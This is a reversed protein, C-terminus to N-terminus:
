EALRLLIRSNKHNISFQDIVQEYDMQFDREIALICLDSLREDAMTTRIRTKILKMKSFVRECTSSSVPITLAAKIMLMMNPFAQQLPMLDHYLESISSLNKNDLMPKLVQIENFLYNRDCNIHSSLPLLLDYNLFNKNQPSISSLSSLLAINSPSFRDRMEILMADILPYYINDRYGDESTIEQRHGITSTIFADKFRTPIINARRHKSKRNMDIGYKEQMLPVIIEKKLLIILHLIISEYNLMIANISSWRSDWRIDFWTKLKLTTTVDVIVPNLKHAHCHIYIGNPMHNKRLISQIGACKGSMVSAGDYCQSICSKLEIGCKILCNAIEDSLTPADFEHLRVLGLFYEQIVNKNGNTSIPVVVRVVISLQEHGSTDRSEDALLSFVNGKISETIQRKTHEAMIKILENQVRPSLYTSNGTNDEFISKVIPDTSSAWQLIELFNSRNQSIEREDHGRIGIGQKACLLLASAIKMLRQRNRRIQEVRGNELMHIVNSQSQERQQYAAYNSAALIHGYRKLHQDFGKSKDLAKKWNKFGNNIFGDTQTKKNSSSTPVGFHRCYYCYSGDKEISYELWPRGDYWKAVFSRNEHNKPYSSLKPQAPPDQCSISVDVVDGITKNNNKEAHQVNKQNESNINQSSMISPTEVPENIDFTVRSPHSDFSQTIANENDADNSQEHPSKSKKQTSLFFFSDLTKRKGNDM